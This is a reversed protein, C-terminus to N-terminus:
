LVVELATHFIILMLLANLPFYHVLCLRSGYKIGDAQIQLRTCCTLVACVSCVHECCYSYM